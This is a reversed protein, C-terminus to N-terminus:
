NSACTAPMNQEKTPSSSCHLDSLERPCSVEEYDVTPNNWKLNYFNECGERLTSDRFSGCNCNANPDGSNIM